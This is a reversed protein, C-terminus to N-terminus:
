FVTRFHSFDDDVHGPQALRQHDGVHHQGTGAARNGQWLAYAEECGFLARSYDQYDGSREAEAFQRSYGEMPWFSRFAVRPLDAMRHSPNAGCTAPEEAAAGTAIALGLAIAFVGYRVSPM